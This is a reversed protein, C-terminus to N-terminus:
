MRVLLGLVLLLKLLRGIPKLIDLEVALNALKAESESINQATLIAQNRQNAEAIKTLLTGNQM